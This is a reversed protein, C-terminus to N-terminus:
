ALRSVFRAIIEATQQPERQFLLHPGHIEAVSTLPKIQRIEELCSAPILRDQTARIYLIPVNIRNLEARVDCDLAARLRASLVKPQVSSIASDVAFLLRSSAKPGVLLLSAAFGPLRMRFFFPSLLSGAFRLWSRVPSSAFGACLVLGKLNPPNTASYQIALPTSFSEAVLVFPESDHTASHVFDMLESYSLFIDTPFCVPVIEYKGSFAQVLDAFLRGTGDMGPLLVLRKIM